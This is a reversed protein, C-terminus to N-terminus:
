SGSQLNQIVSYYKNFPRADLGNYSSLASVTFPLLLTQEGASADMTTLSSQLKSLSNKIEKNKKQRGTIAPQVFLELLVSHLGIRIPLKSCSQFVRVSIM